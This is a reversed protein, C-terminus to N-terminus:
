KRRPVSAVVVGIAFGVLMGGAFALVLGFAVPAAHIWMEPQTM